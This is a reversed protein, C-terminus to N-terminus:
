LFLVSPAFVCLCAHVPQVIGHSLLLLSLFLAGVLWPVPNDAFVSAPLVQLSLWGQLYRWLPSRAESILGLVNRNKLNSPKYFSIGLGGGKRRGM